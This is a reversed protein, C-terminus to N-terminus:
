NKHDLGKSSKRRQILTFNESTTARRILSTCSKPCYVRPILWAHLSWQCSLWGFAFMYVFHDSLAWTVLLWITKKFCFFSKAYCYLEIREEPSKSRWCPKAGGVHSGHRWTFVSLYSSAHDSVVSVLALWFRAQQSFPRQLDYVIFHTCSLVRKTPTWQRHWLSSSVSQLVNLMVYHVFSLM